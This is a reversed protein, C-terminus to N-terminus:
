DTKSGKTWHNEVKKAQLFSIYYAAGLPSGM